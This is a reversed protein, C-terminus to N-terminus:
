FVGCKLPLHHHFFIIPVVTTPSLAAFLIIPIVQTTLIQCSFKPSSERQLTRMDPVHGISQRDIPQVGIKPGTRNVQQFRDM